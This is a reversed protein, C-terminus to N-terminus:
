AAADPTRRRPRYWFDRTALCAGGVILACAAGIRPTAEGYGAVIMWVTSLLPTAYAMAGLVQIDGHKVGHDWTFFALGVPGLGMGLIGLWGLADPVVTAELAFHCAAALVATAGCFGGVADTPVQGVKRSMVSYSSWLLAAAVAAGYGLASGGAAGREAGLILTASGALGLLAGALHFWRLREGPLLASFVVILLPWLYNILNADVPPANQVATFYAFHYGFLGYIGLAWVRPPQRLARLLSRGRLAPLILGILFAITFAMAVMQFPPVPGSAVSLLGLGSFMLIATAGILTSRRVDRTM